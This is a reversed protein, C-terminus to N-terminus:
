HSRYSTPVARLVPCETRSTGSCNVHSGAAGIRCPPDSIPLPRSHDRQTTSQRDAPHRHSAAPSTPHGTIPPQGHPATAAPTTRHSTEHSSSTWSRPAPPSSPDYRPPLRNRHHPHLRTRRPPRNRRHQRRPPQAPQRILHATRTPDLRRRHRGRYCPTRVNAADLAAGHHSTFVLATDQWSNGATLREDAQSGAWARLAQVAAAPLGLTRRSQETKTDGHTRVSRWVAIHPPVPPSAAPDGDLNVHTWHLARAEETRIGALLSTVIYAHMLEAPRRVDKLGPRLEMVPLTAAATIVAIAQDLTLSKSPRGPQGKPTDALTAVNRSILDNAEAHRITRKLALQGMSVAATSYGAAMAALAQRVDAATLERLKRAGIVALIPELMNQNKTVTKPSRGDLGHALWDRAAHRVTYHAYGAKPTLGKDLEHHLNHLKDIVAAKTTGSVKRRTRTGDGPYGTTFEGRWLGPCTRHRQPRPLARPTRLLHRRRRAPAPDDHHCIVPPPSL